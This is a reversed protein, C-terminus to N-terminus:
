VLERVREKGHADYEGIVINFILCVAMNRFNNFLQSELTAPNKVYPVEAPLM